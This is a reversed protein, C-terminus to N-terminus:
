ACTDPIGPNGSPICSNACETCVYAKDCHGSGDCTSTCLWDGGAGYAGGPGNSCKKIDSCEIRNETTNVCYNKGFQCRNCLPHQDPEVACEQYLTITEEVDGTCINGRTGDCERTFTRKYVANDPGSGPITTRAVQPLPDFDSWGLNYIPDEIRCGYDELVFCDHNASALTYSDLCCSHNAQYPDTDRKDLFPLNNFPYIPIDSRHPLCAKVTLNMGAEGITSTYGINRASVKVKHITNKKSFFDALEIGDQEIFNDLGGMQTIVEPWYQVPIEAWSIIFPETLDQWMYELDGQSFHDESKSANFMYPDEASAYMNPIDPYLNTGQLEIRPKDDVFIRIVQYDYNGAPDTVNIIVEHSGVDLHSTKIEACRGKDNIGTVPNHCRADRNNFLTSQEWFNRTTQTTSQRNRSDDWVEDYDAKWGHYNYTIDDEDPDFALPALMLTDNEVIFIDYNNPDPNNQEEKLYDLAPPRNKVAFRFIYPAGKFESFEDHIEIISDHTQPEYFRKVTIGNIDLENAKSLIGNRLDFTVDKIDEEVAPRLLDQFIHYLRINETTTFESLSVSSEELEIDVQFSLRFTVDNLGFTVKSAMEGPSIEYGLTDSFTSFNLCSTMAEKVYHEMQEQVSYGDCKICKCDYNAGRLNSFKCLEPLVQKTPEGKSGLLFNTMEHSYDEYCQQGKWAPVSSRSYCPYYPPRSVLYYNPGYIQYAISMNDYFIDPIEWDILSANSSNTRIFGGRSVMELTNHAADQLCSEIYFKLSRMQSESTVVSRQEEELSSTRSDLFLIFSFAILIVLGLVILLTIQAKKSLMFDHGAFSM